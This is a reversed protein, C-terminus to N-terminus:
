LKYNEPNFLVTVPVENFLEPQENVMVEIVCTSEILSGNYFIKVVTAIAWVGDIKFLVKNGPVLNERFKRLEIMDVIWAGTLVLAIVIVIYLFVQYEM